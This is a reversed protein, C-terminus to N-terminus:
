NTDFAIEKVQDPEWAIARALSAWGRVQVKEVPFWARSGDEVFEVQIRGGLSVRGTTLRCPLYGKVRIPAAPDISKISM